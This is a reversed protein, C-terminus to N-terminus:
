GRWPSHRLRTACGAPPRATAPEFGTEGIVLTRCPSTSRDPGMWPSLSRTGAAGSSALRRDRRRAARRAARCRDAVTSDDRDDRTGEAGCGGMERVGTRMGVAQPCAARGSPEGAGQSPTRSRAGDRWRARSTSCGSLPSLLGNATWIRSTRRLVVTDPVRTRQREPWDDAEQDSAPRYGPRQILILSSKGTFLVYGTLLERM